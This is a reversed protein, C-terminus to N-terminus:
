KNAPAASIDALASREDREIALDGISVIGVPRGDEVVPLRRVAQDRMIDVARSVHDDPALTYDASSAVAQATTTGPDGGDALFRTVLDRDTVVGLLRGDNTVLVAGVDQDRMTGAIDTVVTDPQVCQPSKTMIERIQQSM